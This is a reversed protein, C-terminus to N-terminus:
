HVGGKEDLTKEKEVYYDERRRYFLRGRRDKGNKRDIPLTLLCTSCITSDM